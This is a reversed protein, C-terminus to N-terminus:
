KKISELQYIVTELSTLNNKEKKMFTAMSKVCGTGPAYWEFAELSLSTDNKDPSIDTGVHKIKLCDKFTGAPVKVVDSVSYITQSIQMDRDGMRVINDWTSEESIPYKIYYVPPKIITLDKDDPRKDAIKYVGSDDEAVFHTVLNGGMNWERPIVAKDDIKQPPLNKIILKKTGSKDSSVTYEWTMGQKLPYYGEGGEASGIKSLIWFPILLSLIVLSRKM